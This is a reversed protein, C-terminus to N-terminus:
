ASPPPPSATPSASRPPPSATPSAARPGTVSGARAPHHPKLEPQSQRRLMDAASQRRLETASPRTPVPVPTSRGQAQLMALLGQCASDEPAIDLISRCVAIAQQTRGQDRYALAVSRYLEVAEVSRGAERMMGAAQVRLGLNNPESKLRKELDKLKM